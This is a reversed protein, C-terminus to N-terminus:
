CLINVAPTQGSLEFPSNVFGAKSFTAFGDGVYSFPVGTCGDVAFISASIGSALPSLREAQIQGNRLVRARVQINDVPTDCSAAVDVRVAGGTVTPFSVSGSCFIIAAAARGDRVPGAGPRVLKTSFTLATGHPAPAAAPVAPTASAPVSTAAGGAIAGVALMAAVGINRLHRRMDM